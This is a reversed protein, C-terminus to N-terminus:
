LWNYLPIFHKNCYTWSHNQSDGQNSRLVRMHALLHHRRGFDTDYILPPSPVTSQSVTPEFQEVPFQKDLKLLLILEFKWGYWGAKRISLNPLGTLAGGLAEAIITQARTRFAFARRTAVGSGVYLLYVVVIFFSCAKLPTKTRTLLAHKRPELKGGGLQSTTRLLRGREFANSPTSSPMWLWFRVRGPSSM